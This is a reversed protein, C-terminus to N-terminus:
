VHLGARIQVSEECRGDRRTCECKVTAGKFHVAIRSAVTCAEVVQEGIYFGTWKKGLCPLRALILRRGVFVWGRCKVLGLEYM